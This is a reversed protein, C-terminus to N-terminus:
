PPGGAARARRPLRLDWIERLGLIGQPRTIMMIILALAYLIMRYKSLDVGQWVAVARTSEWAVCVAALIILARAKRASFVMLLAAVAVPVLAWFSLLTPPSRLIEPLITLMAAAMAAGSISGLGGLVVMIIIDFSKLFGLDSASIAGIDM